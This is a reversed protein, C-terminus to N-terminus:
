VMTEIVLKRAMRRSSNATITRCTILRASSTQHHLGSIVLDELQGQFSVKDAENGNGSRSMWVLHVRVVNASWGIASGNGKAAGHQLPPSAGIPSCSLRGM